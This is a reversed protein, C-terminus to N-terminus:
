KGSQEMTAWLGFNHLKKVDIEVKERSGSSVVAKGENHVKLMLDTAKAKSYGFVTQFVFTVYGMLNIPDDWVITLWPKDSDVDERELVGTSPTPATLPANDDALLVVTMQRNHEYHYVNRIPLYLKKSIIGSSTSDYADVFFCVLGSSHDIRCFM